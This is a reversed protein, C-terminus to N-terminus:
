HWECSHHIARIGLWRNLFKIRSLSRAITEEPAKTKRLEKEVWDKMEDLTMEPRTYEGDRYCSRCYITSRSHDKETGSLGPRDIPMGCSQCFTYAEMKLINKKNM